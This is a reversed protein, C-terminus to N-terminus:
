PLTGGGFNDVTSTKYELALRGPGTYRISDGSIDHTLVQVWGGAGTFHLASVVSGVVRIALKDGSALPQTAGSAITVSLGADIRVISWAGSGGVAVYYGSAGTTGAGTVRAGIRFVDGSVYGTVTVYAESDPGFSTANWYDWTFLSSSSDVAANGLVNMSAFGTPRILSWGAGVPGNARNFDDLVPTSPALSSGAVVVGTVVSSVSVSGASNTATELM